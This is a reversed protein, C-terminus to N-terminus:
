KADCLGHNKASRIINDFRKELYLKVYKVKIPLDTSIVSLFKVEDRTRKEVDLEAQVEALHGDSM